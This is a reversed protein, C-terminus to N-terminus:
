DDIRRTFPICVNVKDQGYDLQLTEESRACRSMIRSVPLFSAETEDSFLTCSVIISNKFWNKRVHDDFWKVKAFIHPQDKQGQIVSNHLVFYEIIGARVDEMKYSRDVIEGTLSSWIAMITTSKHCRSKSSTYIQKFIDVQNFEQYLMPIHTIQEASYLKIYTNYLHAKTGETFFKERLPLM